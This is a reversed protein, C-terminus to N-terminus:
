RKHRHRTVVAQLKPPAQAQVKSGFEVARNGRGAENRPTAQARRRLPGEPEGGDESMGSETDSDDDGRRARRRRRKRKEKREAAHEERRAHYAKKKAYQHSNKRTTEIIIEKATQRKRAPQAKGDGIKAILKEDSKAKGQVGRQGASSKAVAASTTAGFLLPRAGAAAPNQRHEDRQQLAAKAALLARFKRPVADEASPKPKIDLQRTRGRGLRVDPAREDQRSVKLFRPKEGRVRKRKKKSHAGAPKEIARSVPPM